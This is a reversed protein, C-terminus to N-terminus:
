PVTNRSGIPLDEEVQTHETAITPLKPLGCGPEHPSRARPSDSRASLLVYTRDGNRDEPRPRRVGFITSFARLPSPKPTDIPTFGATALHFRDVIYFSNLIM